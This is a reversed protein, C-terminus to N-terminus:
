HLQNIYFNIQTFLQFPEKQASQAVIALLLLSSLLSILSIQESKTSIYLNKEKSLFQMTENQNKIVRKRPNKDFRPKDNVKWFSKTIMM